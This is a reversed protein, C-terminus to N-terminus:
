RGVQSRPAGHGRSLRFGIFSNRTSREFRGRYAARVLVDSLSWCGGRRLRFTGESPGMPDTVHSAEYSGHWDQCWEWVNGLTDYLGWPNARRSGVRHTGQTHGELDFDEHRNSDHWAINDLGVNDATNLGAYTATTTGARCCYEWEAETPLRIQLEPQMGNLKVIFEQTDQWSVMEVPRRPDSFKSPNLLMVAQWLAQTCATAGMWFGRSITVDHQVENDQRGPEDEPSGMRFTGARIWHMRYEVDKVAFAAWPGYKSDGWSSAWAPPVGRELPHDIYPADETMASAECDRAHGHDISTRPQPRSPSIAQALGAMQPYQGDARRHSFVREYQEPVVLILDPDRSLCQM